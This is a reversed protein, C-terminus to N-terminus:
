NHKMSSFLFSFYVSQIACEYIFDEYEEWPIKEGVQVLALVILHESNNTNRNKKRKQRTEWSAINVITGSDRQSNRKPSSGQQITVRKPTGSTNTTVNSTQLTTPLVIPAKKPNPPTSSFHSQSAEKTRKYEQKNIIELIKSSNERDGSNEINIKKAFVSVKFLQLFLAEIQNKAPTSTYILYVPKHPFAAVPPVPTSSTNLQTTTSSTQIESIHSALTPPQPTPPAGAQIAVTPSSISITSTTRLISTDEISYTADDQKIIETSISNTTDDEITVSIDASIDSM